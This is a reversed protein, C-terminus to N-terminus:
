GRTGLQAKRQANLRRNRDMIERKSMKKQPQNKLSCVKILTTLRSLHWKQFEIPIQLAIMYYYILEATLTEKNQKGGQVENFTTATMSDDIYDKIQDVVEKPIITYVSPDVHKTITMCRIYDLAEENTKNEKSLFPKKWKSEWNSLSILSHELQINNQGKITETRVFEQKDDDFYEVGPFDPVNITLM